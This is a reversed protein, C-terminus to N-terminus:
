QCAICHISDPLLNTFFIGAGISQDGKSLDVQTPSCIPGCDQLDIVEYSVVLKSRQFESFIIAEAVSEEALRLNGTDQLVM